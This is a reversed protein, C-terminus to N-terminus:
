AGGAKTARGAVAGGDALAAGCDSCFRGTGTIGCAPCQRRDPQSMANATM